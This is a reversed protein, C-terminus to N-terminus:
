RYNSQDLKRTTYRYCRRIYRACGAKPTLQQAWSAFGVDANEVQSVSLKFKLVAIASFAGAPLHQDILGKHAVPLHDYIRNSFRRLERGSEKGYKNNGREQEAKQFRRVRRPKGGSVANREHRAM